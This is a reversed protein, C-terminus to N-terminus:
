ILTSTSNYKPEVSKLIVSGLLYTGLKPTTGYMLLFEFRLLLLVTPLYTGLYRLYRTRITAPIM